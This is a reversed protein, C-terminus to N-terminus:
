KESLTFNVWWEELEYKSQYAGAKLEDLNKQIVQKSSLASYYEEDAVNVSSIGISIEKQDPNAPYLIEMPIRVHYSFLVQNSTRLSVKVQEEKITTNTLTSEETRTDVLEYAQFRDILEEQFEIKTFGKLYSYFSQDTYPFEVPLPYNVAYITKSKGNPDIWVSLGLNYIKRLTIPSNTELIIDVFDENNFTKVSIQDASHYFLAEKESFRIYNIENQSNWYATFKNSGSCAQLLLLLLILVKNKVM